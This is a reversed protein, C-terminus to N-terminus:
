QRDTTPVAKAMSECVRERWSGESVSQVLAPAVGGKRFVKPINMLVESGLFYMSYFVPFILVLLDAHYKARRPLVNFKVLLLISASALVPLIFCWLFVSRIRRNVQSRERQMDQSVFILFIKYLEQRNKSQM